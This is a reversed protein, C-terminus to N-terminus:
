LNNLSSVVSFGHHPEAPAPYKAGERQVVFLKLGRLGVLAEIMEYRDDAVLIEDFYADESYDAFGVLGDQQILKEKIYPGKVGKIVTARGDLGAHALKANQYAENLGTTVVWFDPHREIFETVDPYVFDGEIKLHGLEEELDIGHRAFVAHLDVTDQKDLIERELDCRSSLPLDLQQAAQVVVAHAFADTDIITRDLDVIALERKHESM